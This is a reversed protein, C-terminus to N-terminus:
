CKTIILNLKDGGKTWLLVLPLDKLHFWRLHFCLLAAKIRSCDIVIENHQEVVFGNIVLQFHAYYFALIGEAGIFCRLPIEGNEGHCCVAARQKLLPLRFLTSHRSFLGVFVQTLERGRRKGEKLTWKISGSKKNVAHLNGDLTSVFLLSEPLSVTSASCFGQVFVICFYLFLYVVLHYLLVFFGYRWGWGLLFGVKNM